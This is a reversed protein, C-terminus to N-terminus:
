IYENLDEDIAKYIVNHIVTTDIIDGVWSMTVNGGGM